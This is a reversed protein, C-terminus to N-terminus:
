ARPRDAVAAQLATADAVLHLSTRIDGREGVVVRSGLGNGPSAAPASEKTQILVLSPATAAYAQESLAPGPTMSALANAISDRVDRSTLQPRGPNLVGYLWIAIFAAVIGSAFPVVRRVRASVRARRFAAVAGGTSTADERPD